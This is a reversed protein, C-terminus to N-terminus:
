FEPLGCDFAGGSKGSRPFFDIWANDFADRMVDAIDPSLTNFCALLYDRADETTFTRNSDGLPAFLEFWPLGGSYGLKEAKKRLYRRFHPLYEEVASMLADLTQRSMLSAHLAQDLPSAFGRKEALMIVQNKINNLAFAVSDQIKPYCSLEAEYAAKRVAPDPSYALNRLETLTAPKGDFENSVTSTLYTQLDGWASGGTTDMAAALAEEENSLLHSLNDKAQGILFLYDRIVPSDTAMSNPDEIGGLLKEAAAEAAATQSNIRMVRALQAKLEGNETDVSSRLSLYIALRSILVTYSELALLLEEASVATLPTVAGATLDTLHGSASILEAIDKEYSPDELGKYLIDLNWKENMNKGKVGSVVTRSM